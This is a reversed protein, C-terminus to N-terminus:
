PLNSVVAIGNLMTIYLTTGKIVLNRPSSLVGPLPGTVFGERGSVGVLTSVAGAPTIKRITHNGTDAVYVNDTSDAAIGWPQSFSAAVGIGDAHGEVGATGALTSVAGAPTIKRIVQNGTDAVYVNGASDTAIGRPYSFRAAAGMGDAYDSVRDTGALTSMVGAPTIKRITQYSSDAVYVNGASDTAIADPITFSSAETEHDYGEAGATRTLTSVVGSSTIKRITHNFPPPAFSDAGAGLIFGICCQSVYVNGASDTAIGRPSNFRAAAGIGDTYGFVRATGALTSVVGTPTIKRVTGNNTDAVYVNGAGDTAIGGPYFFKAESGSGDLSGAEEMNGAFLALTSRGEAITSSEMCTVVVADVNAGIMKAAGNTVTCTLGAPQNAVTINYNASQALKAAFTFATANAAIALTETGNALTLGTAGGGLGSISGGLSYLPTVDGSIHGGGGGGGCAVLIWVCLLTSFLKMTKVM